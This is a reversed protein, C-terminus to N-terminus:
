RKSIDRRRRANNQYTEVRIARFPSLSCPTEQWGQEETGGRGGRANMANATSYVHKSKGGQSIGNWNQRDTTVVYPIVSMDNPEEYGKQMTRISDQLLSLFSHEPPAACSKTDLSGNDPYRTKTNGNKQFCVPFQRLRKEFKILKRQSRYVLSGQKKEKKETM